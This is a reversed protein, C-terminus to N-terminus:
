EGVMEVVTPAREAFWAAGCSESCVHHTEFGPDAFSRLLARFEIEYHRDRSENFEVGCQDCRIVRM